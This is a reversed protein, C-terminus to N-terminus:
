ETSREELEFELGVFAFPYEEQVVTSDGLNVYVYPSMPRYEVIIACLRRVFGSIQKEEVFILDGASLPKGESSEDFVDVTASNMSLEGSNIM